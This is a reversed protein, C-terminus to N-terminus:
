KKLVGSELLSKDAMARAQPETMNSFAALLSKVSRNRDRLIKLAQKRETLAHLEMFAGLQLEETSEATKSSPRSSTLSEKHAKDYHKKEREILYNKQYQSDQKVLISAQAVCAELKKLWISKQEFTMGVVYRSAANMAVNENTITSLTIDPDIMNLRVINMYDYESQKLAATPDKDAGTHELSHCKTCIIEVQEYSEPVETESTSFGSDEIFRTFCWKIEAVSLEENCKLCRRHQHCVLYNLERSESGLPKKCILCSANDEKLEKLHKHIVRLPSSM